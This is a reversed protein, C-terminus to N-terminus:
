TEISPLARMKPRKKTINFSKYQRIERENGPPFSFSKEGLAETTRPQEDGFIFKLISTM